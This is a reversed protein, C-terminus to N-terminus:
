SPKRTFIVKRSAVRSIWFISASSTPLSFTFAGMLQRPVIGACRSPGAGKQPVQRPVMGFAKLFNITKQASGVFRLQCRDFSCNLWSFDGGSYVLVCSTFKCNEFHHDDMHIITDTETKNSVVKM